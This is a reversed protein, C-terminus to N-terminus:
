VVRNSVFDGRALIVGRVFDAQGDADVQSLHLCTRFIIYSRFNLNLLPCNKLQTPHNPWEFNIRRQVKM